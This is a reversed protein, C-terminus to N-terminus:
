LVALLVTLTATFWAVGVTFVQGAALAMMLPWVSALEVSVPPEAETAPVKAQVVGEM